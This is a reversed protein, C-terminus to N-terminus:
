SRARTPNPSPSVGAGTATAGGREAALKETILQRLRYKQVKGSPTMPFEAVIELREPFKQRALQKTELFAVIEALTLTEGARPVVFACARESLRPDPMAVIAVGTIKPHSFLLNEVEVVPINEGGRIVLDKSRGTISLYGDGDLTGRDGTKFWGEGTHAERTFAPRKFYGVFQFAGRALLEGETGAPVPHGDDDVIALEMGPLPAGDTAVVKEEPDELGNCTVLGNETMGWGASIACRFRARADRVLQRPIAAGASVFLRLSSFDHDGPLYALDNLFPTAGMTFTVGHEAILRAAAEPSWVDLWVATTGLVLTQCYAYLYATQHGLTSAMLIVDRETMRFREVMLHVNALTTNPTHMVGKPEGTTGSTFMVEHVRNPDSGTLDGAATYSDELRAFSTTGAGAAGRAVFVHEVRPVDPRLSALMAGHDFGRFVGPVVVVSSELLNLIFRLESARYIPPIPNAVAGLREAALLVVVFENWNPLQISVVSGSRIGHAALGRAVTEVRRGLEGYTLRGVGDILAVKDPQKRAWRDLYTSLTENRWFGRATCERIRADTLDTEFTM